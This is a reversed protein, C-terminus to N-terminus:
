GREITGIAAGLYVASLATFIYAQILGVLIGLAMFPIPIFLGALVVVIGLVLEHSMMNGFLRVMLSFTRTLESLLNLPLLLPNPKLYGRLYGAVGQARLGLVHVSLLVVLALACPTEVHATPPHLGPVLGALNAVALYIFLTGLLPLLPRGDKRVIGEIQDLILEVVVELFSQWRSPEDVSARRTGLWAAGGLGAILLWTTVVPTTIPVPGLQVLVPLEFPDQTM